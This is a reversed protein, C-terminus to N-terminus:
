LCWLPKVSSGYVPCLASLAQDTDHNRESGLNLANWGQQMFYIDLSSKTQEYWKEAFGTATIGVSCM